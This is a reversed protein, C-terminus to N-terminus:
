FLLDQQEAAKSILTLRRLKVYLIANISQFRSRGLSTPPISGIAGFLAQGRVRDLLMQLWFLSYCCLFLTTTPRTYFLSKPNFVGEQLGTM